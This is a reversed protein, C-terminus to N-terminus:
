TILMGILSGEVCLEYHHLATCICIILLALHCLSNRTCLYTKCLSTYEYMTIFYLGQIVVNVVNFSLFSVYCKKRIM